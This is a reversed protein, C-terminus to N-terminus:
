FGAPYVRQKEAFSLLSQTDALAKAVHLCTCSPRCPPLLLMCSQHCADESLVHNTVVQRTSSPLSTTEGDCSSTASRCCLSAPALIDNCMCIKSHHAENRGHCADCHVDCALHMCEHKCALRGSSRVTLWLWLPRSGSTTPEARRRRRRCSGAMGCSITGLASCRFLVHFLLTGATQHRRSQQDRAGGAAARLAAAPPGGTGAGSIPVPRRWDHAPCCIHAAAPGAAAGSLRVHSCPAQQAAAPLQAADDSRAAASVAGPSCDSGGLRVPYMCKLSVTEKNQTLKVAKSRCFGHPMHATHAHRRRVAGSQFGGTALLATCTITTMLLFTKSM